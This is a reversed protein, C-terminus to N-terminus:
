PRVGVCPAVAPSTNPSASEHLAKAPRNARNTQPTRFTKVTPRQNLGFPACGARVAPAAVARREIGDFLPVKRLVGGERLWLETETIREIRAQGLKAGQAYLRTGVALYSRGNRVIVTTASSAISPAGPAAPAGPVGADVPPLTPDRLSQASVVGLAVGLLLGTLWRLSHKM